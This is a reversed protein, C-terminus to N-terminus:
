MMSTSPRNPLCATEGAVDSASYASRPRGDDIM